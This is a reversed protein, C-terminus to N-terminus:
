VVNCSQVLSNVAASSHMGLQGNHNFVCGTVTNSTGALEFGAGAVWQVNLSSATCNNGATMQVAASGQPLNACHQFQLNQLNIYNQSNTTLLPGATSTVEVTKGSPSSGDALRLYIKHATQDIFFSGAFMAAKTAVEQIYVGNVFLQNRAEDRADHPSANWSGYYHTWGDSHYTTGSDLAWTSVVTSGKLIVTAGSAGVLTIPHGSSGSRPFSATQGRYTGAQIQVTDGAQATNLGKQWTAFPSSSTGSNGDSGTTSVYYTAALTSSALALSALLAFGPLNARLPPLIM